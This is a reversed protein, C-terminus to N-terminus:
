LVFDGSTLNHIGSVIIKLDATADGNVDAQVITNGDSIYYTVGNALVNSTAGGWLFSDNGTGIQVKADILNLDIKDTGTSNFDLITDTSSIGNSESVATFNFTDNNGGGWLQDSGGGGTLSDNNQGGILADDGGGGV